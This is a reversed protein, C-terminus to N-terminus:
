YNRSIFQQLAQKLKDPEIPKSLHANMGSAKSRKIDEDFANASVAIMPVRSSDPHGCTRILHAAELGDMVPMMVDMFIMHYTGKPSAKFMEAAQKGNCAGDVCCGLNELFTRMIEMNLENDEAVLVRIGTLDVEELNEEEQKRPAKAVPLVLTFFFTSGKGLESELEMESDMMHILRNCIALGLGSGQRHSSANGLQEFVGFIRQRDKESIGIGHDTVAFYISAMGNELVTEKVTLQTEMGRDSYKVANGLLNILVQSIRLADGHFWSHILQIDTKFIQGKEAFEGDLVPHLEDLLNPLDFDDKMLTMKDSEIKSMDLIDNLLGLLYDSSTRVKKLCDIRVQESQGEQLAIETMGIIGNMPTRIEHSMRALFDSKAQASQDHHEQNIRNQIITGIEWLIDYNDKEDLIVPDIGMFYISGSYKGNDSMPFVIGKTPCCNKKLVASIDAAEEMSHLLHMQAERNMRQYESESCYYVPEMGEPTEPYKWCYAVVGSLYEGSFSTVLLDLLSFQKALRCAALDLAATFSASRDFLNLILSALGMRSIYDQSVVESFPKGTMKTMQRKEWQVVQCNRYVAERLAAQVRCILEETTEDFASVMGACFKLELANQRIISSFEMQLHFLMQRCEEAGTNPLWMLFEDAGARILVQCSQCINRCNKAALEAIENLIVDGFTLGYNQVITSFACIDMLILVGQPEQRRAKVLANKGQKLRYFGTVSDMKQRKEQELERMKAKHINRSYGVMTWNGTQQDMMMKGNIEIWLGDPKGQIMLRIQVHVDPKRSRILKKILEQDEASLQPDFVKEWFEAVPWIGDHEKSNVIELTQEKQRYTFFVDNSSELAIRYREKEERLQKETSIESETLNQVVEHLEDIELIHSPHFGQLGKLGGRVSDMLRYVPASIYRVVAFMVAVGVLACVVITTLISRYLQNGLGYISEETVFGCLVWNTNEYPVKGSYLNLKSMVCYINQIGITSNEVLFLDKYETSKLSYQMGERRITDFLSGKGSLSLYTEEGQEVAIAYGANQNRDLDRVPLYNNSIYSTSVETGLIGYIEGDFCLPISYTIMQHNDLVHDELIFPMSWYGLDEMDADTNQQALLYPMYFFDDAERVGSGLFSFYPFWSSDLAIEAERALSQDGREFLLDSNTKTKTVPDSDRLFFGVYEQAATVEGDNGLILFVGCTDDGRLYNLMEEFVRQTYARQMEKDALFRSIDAQHETLFAKLETNLFASEYRVESWQDTMANELVVRRNEVLNSDNDVASREMTEKARSVLLISFPLLGQLLVVLALPILLLYTLKRKRRKM